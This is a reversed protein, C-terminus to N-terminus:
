KMENRKKKEKCGAFVNMKRLKLRWRFKVKQFYLGFYSLRTFSRTPCLGEKGEM